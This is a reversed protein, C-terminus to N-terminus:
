PRSSAMASLMSKAGPGHHVASAERAPSPDSSEEREAGMISANRRPVSLDSTEPIDMATIFRYWQAKRNALEVTWEIEANDATLERVVEGTANYGYLRFKAAQRKLAGTSDRYFGPNRSPPATLEPGIFYETEADGVRAIGIAPHIAARVIGQDKSPTQDPM